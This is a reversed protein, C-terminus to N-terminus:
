KGEFCRKYRDFDPSTLLVSIPGVVSVGFTSKIYKLREPGPRRYYAGRYWELWDLLGWDALNDAAGTQGWITMILNRLAQGAQWPMVGQNSMVALSILVDGLSYNVAYAHPGCHGVALSIYRPDLTSIQCITEIQGWILARDNAGFAAMVMDVTGSNQNSM